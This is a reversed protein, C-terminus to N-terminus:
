DEDWPPADDHTIVAALDPATDMGPLPEGDLLLPDPEALYDLTWGGDPTAAVAVNETLDLQLLIDCTGNDLVDVDFDFGTTSPALLDPQNVRLWRFIPLTVLAIDSATEVLLLNLRYSFGFALTATQRSQASGNEVWIRLRDPEGQFEPLAAVLAARLTDIKKM